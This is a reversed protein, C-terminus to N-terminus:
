FLAIKKEFRNTMEETPWNGNGWPSQTCGILLGFIFGFLISFLLGIVESRIGIKILKRDSIITGFTIAMIPGQFVM